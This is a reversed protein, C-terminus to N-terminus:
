ISIRKLNTNGEGPYGLPNCICKVGHFDYEMFDHTHGYIWYKISGNKLYREGDFTFFGTTLEDQYKKDTHEKAISPNVHTIMIDVDQYIMQIKEKEQQSFLQWNMDYIYNADNLSHKWLQHIWTDDTKNFHKKTYAGDYWSDCGGIRVGEIEIINGDLCYMGNQNNILNRMGEVRNNSNSVYTNKSTSDILYYDHNGLVCVIYKYEFIRKIHHLIVIGQNNDHGIDGAVILMDAPIHDKFIHSLRSKVDQANIANEKFYFDFHLDSLIDIKM